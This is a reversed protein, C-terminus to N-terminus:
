TSPPDILFREFDEVLSLFAAEEDIVFSEAEFEASDVPFWNAEV